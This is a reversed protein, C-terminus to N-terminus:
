VPLEAPLELMYVARKGSCISDVTIRRGEPSWRPHLDCREFGPTNPPVEHRFLGLMIHRGTDANILALHQRFNEDRYSDALIYKGDPSYVFHGKRGHSDAIKRARFPTESDDYVIVGHGRGDWNADVMIERPHRGWIQHTIINTWFPEPLSSKIEDGDVTATYMYTQWKKTLGIPDETSRFLWLIRDGTCNFIAHNLWLHRGELAYSYPHNEIMQRYTVILKESGTHLDIIWLGDADPDAPRLDPSLPTLAYSYGRRPIRGFDLSAALRGDPSIAYIPREYRGVVGKGLQFIRAVMKRDAADFDNYVFCDPRHKLFLEMCGQQHCWTDTGTQAEFSGSGDLLGIVAKEGAEPRRDHLVPIKLALHYKGTVDWPCRDYYGFMFEFGECEPTIMRWDFDSIIDMICSESFDMGATDIVPSGTKVSLYIKRGSIKCDRERCSFDFCPPYTHCFLCIGRFYRSFPLLICNSRRSIM